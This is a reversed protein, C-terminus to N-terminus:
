VEEKKDAPTEGPQLESVVTAGIVLVVGAMALVSMGERLVAMSLIVAVVPDIYSFLAVTQAPIGRISGFYLAYAIGTHVIGAVALLALVAVSSELAGLDETLLVYPLMAVACIALQFLTRENATLETIFKNLLIIAAYMVAAALGLLVGAIGAVGTELVGSVLVMGAVAVAACVGKKVTLKERLILPSVLIVIVPAMYYCITAVSVSTYRYAEFLCIWNFGLLVGSALLKPLNRKLAKCSLKERKLLMLALLFAAGVAGRVLAIVGSPYPILKRVLGITGFIVMSLILKLRDANPKM